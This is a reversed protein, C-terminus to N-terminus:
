FRAPGNTMGGQVFGIDVDTSPDNLRQLNQLSGESPLVKLTVGKRALLERYKVANTQFSSGPVGSTITITRPPASYFFWSFAIILLLGVLAVITLALARGLGFTEMIPQLLRNLLTPRSEAM